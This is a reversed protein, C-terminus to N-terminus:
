KKYVNNMQNYLQKYLMDAIGMGRSQSAEKVLAEDFMSQIIETSASEPMLGSKPVTARMQKYMINLFVEEMSQCVEKLAKEDKQEMARKLKAEFGNDGALEELSSDHNNLQNNTKNGLFNVGETRMSQYKLTSINM